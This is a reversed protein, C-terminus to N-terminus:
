QICNNNREYEHLFQLLMCIYMCVIILLFIIYVPLKSFCCKGDVINFSAFFNQSMRKNKLLGSLVVNDCMSVNVSRFMIESSSQTQLLPLERKSNNHCCPLNRSFESWLNVDHLLAKSSSVALLKYRLTTFTKVRKNGRFDVTYVATQQRPSAISRSGSELTQSRNYSASAEIERTWESERESVRERERWEWRERELRIIIPHCTPYYM